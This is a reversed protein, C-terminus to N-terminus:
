NLLIYFEEIMYNGYYIPITGSIFSQHIKESTYGEGESNEMAISFKYQELFSTKNKVKGGVNNKFSGGMDVRKYKNLKKIFLNRFNGKRNSIVAGCFKTRKPNRLVKERIKKYLSDNVINMLYWPLTFYRDLHKIHYFGISYDSFNLDPLINETHYSIKVCNQYIKYSHNSGFTNYLLYDPNTTNFKFIFKDGLFEILKKTIPQRPYLDVCNIKIIKRFSKKNILIDNHSYRSLKFYLYFVINGFLCTSNFLIVILNIFM